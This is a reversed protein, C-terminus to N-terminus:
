VDRLLRVISISINETKARLNIFTPDNSSAVEVLTPTYCYKDTIVVAACYMNTLGILYLTKTTVHRLSQISLM